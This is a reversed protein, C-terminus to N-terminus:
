SSREVSIFDFVAQLRGKCAKGLFSLRMLEAVFPGYVLACLFVLEPLVALKALVADNSM